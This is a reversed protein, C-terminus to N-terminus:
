NVFYINYMTVALVGVFLVILARCCWNLAKQKKEAEQTKGQRKLDEVQRVLTVSPILLIILIVILIPRWM